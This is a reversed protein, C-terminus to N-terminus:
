LTMGGDIQFVQGTIYAARPSALFQVLDAVDDCTGFRKLPIRTLAQKRRDEPLESTMDTEIFGPAVVNVRVGYPAVEKALSKSLGIIGAKSAAYNTQGVNGYVGAISSMNIVSGGRAKMFRFVVARCLNWTGTLNTHLVRSWDECSMMVMPADRVVGANNVLTAIPALQREADQVFREVASQDAVDCPAMVSRGGAAEVLRVTEAADAENSRYCGAVDYGAEALRVAISRGIGRSAGTVVACPRASV